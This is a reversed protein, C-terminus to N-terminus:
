GLDPSEPPVASRCKLVRKKSCDDGHVDQAEGKAFGAEVFQGGRDDHPGTQPDQGNAEQV